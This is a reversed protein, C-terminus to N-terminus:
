FKNECNVCCLILMKLHVWKVTNSFLKIEALCFCWRLTSPLVFCLFLSNENITFNKIGDRSPTQAFGKVRLHKYLLSLYLNRQILADAFHWSLVPLIARKVLNKIKKIFCVIEVLKTCGRINVRDSM